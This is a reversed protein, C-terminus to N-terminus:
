NASLGLGVDQESMDSMIARESRKEYRFRNKGITVIDGVRLMRRNIRRSNIFTGNMSKLDGLVCGKDTKVLQAHHRSIFQSQIQVDNDPSSGINVTGDVVIYTDSVVGDLGVLVWHEEDQSGPVIRAGRARGSSSQECDSPTRRLAALRKKYGNIQASKSNLEALLQANEASAESMRTELDNANQTALELKAELDLVTDTLNLNDKRLDDITGDQDVIVANATDAKGLRKLNILLAKESDRAEALKKKTETEQRRSQELQDSFRKSSVQLSSVQEALTRCKEREQDIGHQLISNMEERFKLEDQLERILSADGASIPAEADVSDEETGEIESVSDSRVPSDDALALRACVEESLPELEVTPEEDEDSIQNNKNKDIVM